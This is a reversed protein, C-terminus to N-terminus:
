FNNGYLKQINKPQNQKPTTTDKWEISEYTDDCKWSCKGLFKVLVKSIDM